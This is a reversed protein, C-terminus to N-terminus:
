GGAAELGARLNPGFVVERDAAAMVVALVLRAPVHHALTALKSASPRHEVAVTSIEVVDRWATPFNCCSLWRSRPWGLRCLCRWSICRSRWLRRTEAKRHRAARWDHFRAMAERETM